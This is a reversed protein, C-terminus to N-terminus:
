HRHRSAFREGLVRVAVLSSLVFALEGLLTSFNGSFFFWFIEVGGIVVVYVLVLAFVLTSWQTKRPIVHGEFTRDMNEM